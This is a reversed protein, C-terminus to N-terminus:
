ACRPRPPCATSACPAAPADDATLARLVRIDGAAEAAGYSARYGVPFAPCLARRDRRRPDCGRDQGTRGGGGRGLRAGPDPVRQRARSRGGEGDTLTDDEGRMDIAFRTLALTSGEVQLAWDIVPRRHGTGAARSRNACKPRSATARSGSSPMSIGSWRARVLALRPRPRDVLVMMTTAIRELDADSFSILLDHPLATLAHVLAKGAHGAPDFGLKSMLAELQSRM